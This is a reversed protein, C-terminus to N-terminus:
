LDHISTYRRNKCAGYLKAASFANDKKKNTNEINRCCLCRVGLSDLVLAKLIADVRQTNTSWNCEAVCTEFQMPKVECGADSIQTSRPNVRVVWDIQRSKMRM